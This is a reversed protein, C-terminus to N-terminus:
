KLRLTAVNDPLPAGAADVASLRQLDDAGYWGVVIRFNEGEASEPLHMSVPDVLYEDALWGSAPCATECSITDQQAVLRGDGDLLQAFRILDAVPEGVVQWVLDFTLIGDELSAGDLGRAGVLSVVDGFTAHVETDVQPQELLRPRGEVVIEGLPEEALVVDGTLLAATITHVGNEADAPVILIPLQYVSEGVRWQSTPYIGGGLSSEDTAVAEGDADVLQLRVALNATPLEEARWLLTLPLREGPSAREPLPDIGILAVGHAAPGDREVQPSLDPLDRPQTIHVLGLPALSLPSTGEQRVTLVRGTADEYVRLDLSYEGPELGPPLDLITYARTTEGVEWVREVPYRDGVLLGDSQAVTRGHDNRLLVSTKLDIDIPHLAEFELIVWLPQDARTTVTEAGGLPEQAGIGNFAVGSLRVADGFYLPTVANLSPTTFDRDATLHYISYPIDGVSDVEVDLRAGSKRLLFDLLHKADMHIFSSETTEPKDSPRLLNVSEVSAPITALAASATEEQLLISLLDVRGQLLFDDLYSDVNSHFYGPALPLLWQGDKDVAEVTRFMEMEDVMFASRFRLPDDWAGFYDRVSTFGSIMLFPLPLLMALKTRHKFIREGVWFMAWVTLVFVAPMMGIARLSHPVGEASILAPAAFLAIWAVYTLGTVRRWLIFALMIGGVLWLALLPDFVPRLAPNHRINPDGMDFFMRALSIGSNVLAAIAGDPAFRPNFISVDVARAGFADPNTVFYRVLPTIVLLYLVSVIATAQLVLRRALGLDKARWLVLAVAVGFLVIAIRGASYTYFTLGLLAGSLLADSWPVRENERLRVFLRWVFVFALSMVLPLTIARFGLRSFSLHWYSFVIFLGVWVGAWRALALDHPREFRMTWWALWFAAPATLAGLVAATVRLIYPTPGFFNFVLAVLYIFLPERGNNREFFISHEGGVVHLADLAYAAEDNYLGPPIEDLRWLRLVLAVVFLALTVLLNIWVGGNAAFTMKRKSM